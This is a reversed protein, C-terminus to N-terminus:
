CKLHEMPRSDIGLAKEQVFQGSVPYREQVFHGQGPNEDQVVQTSM